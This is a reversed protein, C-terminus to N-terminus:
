FWTVLADVIRWDDDVVAMWRWKDFTTCPHSIGLSVRDGVRLGADDDGLRLHAHQDNMGTICWGSPAARPVRQGRACVRVPVPMEIDYSVDRRGATLFALGPEPMSQVTAWVELAAQLGMAADCGIRRNLVSVLRLYRGHDHTVYCGSRLLGQVPRSLSPLLGPTVLDFIGSGGASVLVSAAEDGQARLSAEFLGEAELARAVAGIRVMLGEAMPRDHSEEGTAGLGEYGEVGVLRVAPSVHALRALALAEEHTRCGTRGGALGIELLVEFAIAPQTAEILVLQAPSDLLFVIRLAPDAALLGHLAGLEPPTVVQNAILVRRVGSAVAVQAQAANAVTIGWAGARLQAQFLQPSLTTKGHPALGVGRETAFRQMWGLNHALASARVVALPLPVDGGFLHWGQQGVQSRRLPGAAPPFGKMWPGLLPDLLDATNM